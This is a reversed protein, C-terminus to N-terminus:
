WIEDFSLQDSFVECSEACGDTFDIDVFENFPQKSLEMIDEVKRNHRFFVQRTRQPPGSDPYTKELYEPVLFWEPSDKAITLLKRDSKKYCWVCNGLHEPIELNFPQEKWFKQIDKKTIGEALLPYWLRLKEYNPNVRDMEDSRIGLATVFESNKWGLHDRIFSKMPNLKLERTCYPFVKNFIGYKKVVQEIISGDRAATYYDVIKHTCAKRQGHHTVAEVWNIKIDFEVSCRHVFEYTEPHEQGTNAFIFVKENPLNMDIIKKAMYASTKGGSFAIVIKKSPELKM